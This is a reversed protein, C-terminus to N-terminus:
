VHKWGQVFEKETMIWKMMHKQAIMTLHVVEGVDGVFIAYFLWKAHNMALRVAVIVGIQEKLGCVSPRGRKRNAKSRTGAM